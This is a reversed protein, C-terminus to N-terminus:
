VEPTMLRLEPNLGQRFATLLSPEGASSDGSSGSFVERFHATFHDYTQAAPGAQRIITEVWQLAPGTLSTVVFSIKSKDTPYLHPHQNLILDCQLLFGSCEEEAGSFPTPQAVTSAVVVPSMLSATATMSTPPLAGTTAPPPFRQIVEWLAEVLEQVSDLTSM